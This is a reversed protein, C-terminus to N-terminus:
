AAELLDEALKRRIDDGVEANLARELAAACEGLAGEGFMGATGALKHVTRALDEAALGTFQGARVAREVAEIAEGRRARWREQLAARRSPPITASRASDAQRSGCANTDDDVIQVPLWRALTAALADFHLPKALHGQMGADRASAIDEPFANATLAIIPLAKSSLGGARIAKTAAYGDCGPMQIDMLVLDFPTGQEAADLAAAIAESGDHAISVEQGLEELMAIVLMRNVDHDEALLVRSKALAPRAAVTKGEQKPLNAGDAIRLPIRVTFRSGIGAMSAVELSGGLMETLQRSISLGLGTGGFRRSTQTDEQAFPDFIRQLRDADIGIGTDEVAIVLEGGDPEALVRVEGSETFKVANGVLNLLIQRLRVPDSVLHVPVNAACEARVAIDKQEANARHLHTCDHLLERIEVPEFALVLKGSEIKSIDLIDNLITMMSRGSRSIMQAYRAAEPNLSQRELLNAFGLVGNMPTRIEHSMNALFQAKAKAAHEARRTAAKLKQELSVRQSVDRASVVIGDTAGTGPEFVITCDAEIWVPEGAEDDLLRRYTFRKKQLEGGLLQRATEVLEDKADPHARDGITMGTFTSPPAGLVSRVSPSAYTCVGNTDFRLIADTLNSTLLTLQKRSEALERTVRDRTALIAAVPLGVIISSALFAELVLMQVTASHPLLNVPGSGANTFLIAIVAIKIVSFAAGLPGLRFAHMVVIPPMLFLLPYSTQSFVAYTTATGVGTLAAWEIVGRMGPRYRNAIADWFILLSPVLVLLSLADSAFWHFGPSEPFSSGTGLAVTAFLASCLPAPLGIVLMFPAVDKIAAMDPRPGCFRRVLVLSVVIEISNASSLLAALPLNDGVALNAIVNACWMGTLTAKELAATTRLRLFLAIAAANPVWLSAVRMDGRDLAISLYALLGFAVSASGLLALSHSTSGVSRQLIRVKM